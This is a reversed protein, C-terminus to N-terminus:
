LDASLVTKLQIPEKILEHLFADVQFRGVGRGIIAGPHPEKLRVERNPIELRCQSRNFGTLFVRPRDKSIELLHPRSVQHEQPLTPVVRPNAGTPRGPVAPPRAFGRRGSEIVVVDIPTQAATRSPGTGERAGHAPTRDAPRAGCWSRSEASSIRSSRSTPKSPKVSSSWTRWM